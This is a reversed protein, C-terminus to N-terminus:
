TSFEPTIVSKEFCKDRQKFRLTESGGLDSLEKNCVRYFGKRYLNAPNFSYQQLRVRRECGRESECEFKSLVMFSLSRQVTM